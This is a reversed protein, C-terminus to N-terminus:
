LKKSEIFVKEYRKSKPVCTSLGSLADLGKGTMKKHYVVLEELNEELLSIYLLRYTYALYDKFGRYEQSPCDKNKSFDNLWFDLFHEAKSSPTSDVLNSLYFEEDNFYQEYNNELYMSTPQYSKEFEDDRPVTEGLALGLVSESAFIFYLLVLKIIM